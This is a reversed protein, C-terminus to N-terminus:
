WRMWETVSLDGFIPHPPRPAPHQPPFPDILATLEARDREFERPRSGGVGREREPRPRTGKPWPLPVYLALWKLVTRHLPGTAPSAAREGVAFRFSDLLHCIMGHATMRGWRRPTDPQIRTVREIITNLSDGTTLTIM